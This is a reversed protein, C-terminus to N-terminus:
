KYGFIKQITRVSVNTKKSIESNKMTGKLSLIEQKIKESLRKGRKSQRGKKVMDDMNDQATGLFLHFPNCCTPNDCTHCVLLNKDFEGYWIEYMARHARMGIYNFVLYGYQDDDINGKWLWCSEEDYQGDIKQIDILALFKEITNRNSFDRCQKSCYNKTEIYCQHVLFKDGCTLCKKEVPQPRSAFRCANSCFKAIDVRHLEKVYFQKQCFQCNNNALYKMLLLM